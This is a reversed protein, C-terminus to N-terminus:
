KTLNVSRIAADTLSDASIINLNSKKLIDKGLEVNTGELRVIIPIQIGVEEVANIIGRAIIDCRMIGGFINVLVVKVKPDSLLIKFAKSVTESTASGGVDLFNAPLGGSLKILDMTAMALGAGNVMCGINGELAIYNLGNHFAEEEKPDVQRWDFSDSLEQHRFSANDDLSIKADIAIIEDSESVALPNVELLSLDSKCFLNLCSNLFIKFQLFLKKELGLGNALNEIQVPSLQKNIKYHEKTILSPDKNAIEEIEMGGSESTIVAISETQRDVLISFYMEKKVNITEEILLINVPQGAPKNQSTILNKGLISAAFQKAELPSSTLKIGGAKGRGGAHIQAKIALSKNFKRAIEEIEDINKSLKSKPVKIGNDKLLEKAQYEHLNM